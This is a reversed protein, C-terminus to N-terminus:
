LRGSPTRPSIPRVRKRLFRRQGGDPDTGPPDVPPEGGDEDDPEYGGRVLWLFSAGTLAAVLLAIGFVLDSPVIMISALAVGFSGLAVAALTSLLRPSAGVTPPPLRVAAFVLVVLTTVEIILM